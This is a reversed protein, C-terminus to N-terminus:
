VLARIMMSRGPPCPFPLGGGVGGAGAFYNQLIIKLVALYTSVEVFYTKDLEVAFRLFPRTQFIMDLSM